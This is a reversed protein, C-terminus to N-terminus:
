VAVQSCVQPAPDVAASIQTLHLPPPPYAVLSPVGDIWGESCVQAQFQM